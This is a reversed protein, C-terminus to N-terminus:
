LIQASLSFCFEKEYNRNTQHVVGTGDIISQKRARVDGVYEPRVRRLRIELLAKLRAKEGTINAVKQDWEKFEDDDIGGNQVVFDFMVLYGRLSTMKIRKQYGKAKDHYKKATSIQISVYEQAKALNQLETKWSSKFEDGTYLNNVAWTVSDSNSFPQLAQGIDLRSSNEDVSSVQVGARNDWSQLMSQVSQFHTSSFKAQMVNYHKDRMQIWLPQLSGTGLTQNLLGMSLGMGDFNNTLNSWGSRGEFSGSINLSLSFAIQDNGAIEAPWIVNEFSLKSCIPAITEVKEPPELPAPDDPVAGEPPSQTDEKDSKNEWPKQLGSM